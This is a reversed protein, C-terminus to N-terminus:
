RKTEEEVLKKLGEFDKPFDQDFLYNVVDICDFLVRGAIKVGKKADDSGFRLSPVKVGRVDFEEYRTDIWREEVWIIDHLKKFRKKLEEPLDPLIKEEFYQTVTHSLIDGRNGKGFLSKAGKRCM